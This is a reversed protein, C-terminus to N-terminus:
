MFKDALEAGKSKLEPAAQGVDGYGDLDMCKGTELFEKIQM